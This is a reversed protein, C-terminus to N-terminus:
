GIHVIIGFKQPLGPLLSLSDVINLLLEGLKKTVDDFQSIGTLARPDIEPTLGAYQVGPM